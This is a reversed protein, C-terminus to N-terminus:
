ERGRDPMPPPEAERPLPNEHDHSPSRRASWGSPDAAYGIARRVAEQGYYGMFVLTRLGWVGRRLALVPGNQLAELVRRGQKDSLAPFPRGYRVVPLWSAVRIFLTLQRRVAAPRDALATEVIEEAARWGDEDLQRTEPLLCVALARFAPRVPALSTDSV